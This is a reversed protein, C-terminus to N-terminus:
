NDVGYQRLLWKLPAEGDKVEKIKSLLKNYETKKKEYLATVMLKRDDKKGNHIRKHCNPCLNIINDPNDIIEKPFKEDNRGNCQEILHHAEYYNMGNEKQFTKHNADKLGRCGELTCKSIKNMEEALKALSYNKYKELKCTKELDEILKKQYHGEVEDDEKQQLLDEKLHQKGQLNNIGYKDFLAKQSFKERDNGKVCLANEFKLRIAPIEEIEGKEMKEKEELTEYYLCNDDFVSCRILIRNIRDPLNTYYIYVIDGNKVKLDRKNKGNKWIIGEYDERRDENLLQDFDFAEFDGVILHYKYEDKNGGKINKFKAKKINNDSSM